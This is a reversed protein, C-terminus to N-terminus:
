KFLSLPVASQVEKAKILELCSKHCLPFHHPRFLVAGTFQRCVLCIVFQSLCNRMEYSEFNFFSLRKQNKERMINRM